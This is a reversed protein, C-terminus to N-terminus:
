ANAVKKVARDARILGSGQQDSTLEQLKEASKTLTSRVQYPTLKSNIQLMLAAVGSVHAAAMSTGGMYGYAGGQITSLIESGPAVLNLGKGANSYPLYNKTLSVAGVAVTEKYAAPYDIAGESSNSGAAAIMVIGARYVKKVARTFTESSLSTGWSMNIVQIDNEICWYLGDILDTLTGKGGSDLVKVPVLSINPAVGVIGYENNGAGIIGAVHTGHGNDDNPVIYPNIINIGKKLNKRLDPHGIEIGTDLVAVKVLRGTSINWINNAGIMQVGQSIVQSEYERNQTTKRHNKQRTNSEKILKPLSIQIDNEIRDLNTDAELEKLCAERPMICSIGNIIPHTKVHIAGFRGELGQAYKELKLNSASKYLIIVRKERSMSTVCGKQYKGKHIVM